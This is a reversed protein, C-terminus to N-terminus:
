RKRRRKPTKSKPSRARVEEQMGSVRGLTYVADTLREIAKMVDPIAVGHGTLTAASSPDIADAARRILSEASEGGLHSGGRLYALASALAAKERQSYKPM